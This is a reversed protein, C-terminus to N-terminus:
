STLAAFLGHLAIVNVAFMVMFVDGVAVGVDGGVFVGVSVGYGDGVLVGVAVGVLVGYGEGVAVGVVAGLEVGIGVVGGVMGVVGGAAGVGDGVGVPSCFLANPLGVGVSDGVGGVGVRVAITKKGADRQPLGTTVRM